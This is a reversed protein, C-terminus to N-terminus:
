VRNSMHNESSMGHLVASPCLCGPTGSTLPIATLWCFMISEFASGDSHMLTSHSANLRGEPEAGHALLVRIRAASRQLGHQNNHFALPWPHSFCPNRKHSEHSGRLQPGSTGVCGRTRDIGQGQGGSSAECVSQHLVDSRPACLGPVSSNRM